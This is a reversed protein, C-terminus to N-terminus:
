TPFRVAALHNHISELDHRANDLVVQSTRLAADITADLPDDYIKEMPVPLLTKAERGVSCGDEDVDLVIELKRPVPQDEQTVIRKLWAKMRSSGSLKSTKGPSTTFDVIKAELKTKKRLANQMKMALKSSSPADANALYLKKLGMLEREVNCLDKLYIKCALSETSGCLVDIWDDNIRTMSNATMFDLLVTQTAVCVSALRAHTFMAQESSLTAQSDASDRQRRRPHLPILERALIKGRSALCVINRLSDIREVKSEVEQLVQTAEEIRARFHVIVASCQDNADDLCDELKQIYLPTRPHNISPSTTCLNSLLEQVTTDVDFHSTSHISSADDHIPSELLTYESPSILSDTSQIYDTLVPSSPITCPRFASLFERRCVDEPTLRFIILM